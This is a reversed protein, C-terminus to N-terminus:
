MCRLILWDSEKDFYKKIDKISELDEESFNMESHEIMCEFDEKGMEVDGVFDHNTYDEAGYNLMEEILDDQHWINIVYELDEHVYRIAGEYDRDVIEKKDPTVWISSERLIYGRVSM